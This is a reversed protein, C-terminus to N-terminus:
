PKGGLLEVFTHLPMAVIMPEGDASRRENDGKRTLKKWIVVAPHGLAKKQAKALGQHVNFNARSKAEVIGYGWPARESWLEIDGLDNRGGEALRKAKLGADTFYKVLGSELATGQQKPKNM